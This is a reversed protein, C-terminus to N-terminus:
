NKYRKREPGLLGRFFHGMKEVWTDGVIYYGKKDLSVEYMPLDSNKYSSPYNWAEMKYLLQLDNTPLELLVGNEDYKEIFQSSSYVIQRKESLSSTKTIYFKAFNEGFWKPGRVNDLWYEYVWDDEKKRLLCRIDHHIGKATIPFYAIDYDTDIAPAKVALQVGWNDRLFSDIYKPGQDHLFRVGDQIIWQAAIELNKKMKNQYYDKNKEARADMCIFCVFALVLAIRM